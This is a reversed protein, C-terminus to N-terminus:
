TPQAGAIQAAAAGDADRRDRAAATAAARAQEEAEECPDEAEGLGEPDYDLHYDEAM